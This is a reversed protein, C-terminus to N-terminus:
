IYGLFDQIDSVSYSGDPLEFEENWAPTSKNNKYPKKINKWTHYINVSSLAVYEDSRKLNIKDSLNLLLRHPDSIKSNESNMFIIDKKYKMVKNFESYKQM